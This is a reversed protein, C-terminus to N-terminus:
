VVYIHVNQWKMNSVAGGWRAGGFGWVVRNSTCKPREDTRMAITRACDITSGCHTCSRVCVCEFSNRRNHRLGTKYPARVGNFICLARHTHSHVSHSDWGSFTRVNQVCTTKVERGRETEAYRDMRYRKIDGYITCECAWGWRHMNWQTCCGFSCKNHSRSAHTCAHTGSTLANPSPSFHKFTFNGALTKPHSKLALHAFSRFSPNDTQVESATCNCLSCCTKISHTVNTMTPTETRLQQQWQVFIRM